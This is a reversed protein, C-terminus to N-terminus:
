EEITGELYDVAHNVEERLDGRGSVSVIGYNGRLFRIKYLSNRAYLHLFPQHIDLDHPIEFESTLWNLHTYTTLGLPFNLAARVSNEWQNTESFDLTWFSEPQTGKCFLPVEENDSFVLLGSGFIKENDIFSLAKIQFSEELRSQSSNRTPESLLRNGRRSHKITPWLAVQGQMSRSVQISYYHDLNIKKIESEEITLDIALERLIPRFYEKIEPSSYVVQNESGRQM